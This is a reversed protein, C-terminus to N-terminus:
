NSAIKQMVRVLEGPASWQANHDAELKVVNWGKSRARNAQSSFEDDEPATGKEVTLIFTAPINERDPNNLVIRDTWTKYPHPVDKPPAQEPAVWPPIIFGNEAELTLNGQGIIDILSEGNEPILAEFYILQRIREPISDAVGSIIMGGSSHGVLIVNQLDEYLITNIIDTIHTNLGIEPSALHTREGLGTLTPRYVKNGSETLLSDVERFAWGGGWSGHVIMYVPHAPIQSRIEGKSLGLIIFILVPTISKIIQM